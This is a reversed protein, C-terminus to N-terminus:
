FMLEGLFHVPFGLVLFLRKCKCQADDVLDIACGSIEGSLFFLRRPFKNKGQSMDSEYLAKNYSYSGCGPCM